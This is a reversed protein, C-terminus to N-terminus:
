DAVAAEAASRDYRAIQEVQEFVFPGACRQQLQRQRQRRVLGPVHQALLHLHDAQTLLEFEGGAM